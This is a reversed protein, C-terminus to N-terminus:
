SHRWKTFLNMQVLTKSEVYLHSWVISYKEKDSKSWKTHYDRSRDTNANNQEKKIVSYYEPTHTHTICTCAHMYLADKVNWKFM